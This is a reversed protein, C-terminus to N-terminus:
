AVSLYDVPGFRGPTFLAAQLVETPVVGFFLFREAAWLDETHLPMGVNDAVARVELFFMLGLMLVLWGKTGGRRWCGVVLLLAILALTILKTGPEFGMLHKVGFLVIAAAVCLAQGARVTSRMATLAPGGRSAETHLESKGTM